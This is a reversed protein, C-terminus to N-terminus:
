DEKALPVSGHDPLPESLVLVHGDPDSVAFEVDGYPMREPERILPIQGRVHDALDLLQDGQLRIYVSWGDHPKNASGSSAQLMLEVGDRTLIAFRYPPHDPFPATEFGLVRRYWAVSDAVDRVQLVPTASAFAM